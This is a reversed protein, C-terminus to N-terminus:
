LSVVAFIYVQSSVRWISTASGGRQVAETATPVHAMALEARLVHVPIYVLIMMVIGVISAQM